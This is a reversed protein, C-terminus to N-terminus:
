PLLEEVRQPPRAIVARDGRIVIPREILKPHAVLAALLAERSASALGLEAFLSDGTRMMQKPDDIGLKKMVIELEERSPPATLYERYTAGVGKAELLGRLERSKSCAPNFYVECADDMASLTRSGSAATADIRLRHADFRARGDHLNRRERPEATAERRRM